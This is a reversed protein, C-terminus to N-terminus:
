LEVPSDKPLEVSHWAKRQHFSAELETEKSSEFTERFGNSLLNPVRALFRIKSEPMDDREVPLSSVPKGDAARCSKAPMGAIPIRHHPFINKPHNAVHRPHVKLVVVGINPISIRDCDRNKVILMECFLDYSGIGM